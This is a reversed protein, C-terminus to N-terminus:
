FSETSKNRRFRFFRQFNNNKKWYKNSFDKHISAFVEKKNVSRLNKEKSIKKYFICIESNMKKLKKRCEVQEAIEKNKMRQQVEKAFIADQEKKVLIKQCIKNIRNIRKENYDNLNKLMKDTITTKGMLYEILNSNNADIEKKKDKEIEDFVKQANNQKRFANFDVILDHNNIYQENKIKNDLKQFVKENIIEKLSYKNKLIPLTNSSSQSSNLSLYIDPLQKVITTNTSKDLDYLESKEKPLRIKTQKVKIMKPQMLSLDISSNLGHQLMKENKATNMTIMSPTSFSHSLMNARLPFQATQNERHPSLSVPSLSAVEKIGNNTIIIRM